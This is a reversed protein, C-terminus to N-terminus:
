SPERSSPTLPIEKHGGYHEKKKKRQGTQRTNWFVNSSENPQKNSQNTIAKKRKSYGTTGQLSPYRKLAAGLMQCM